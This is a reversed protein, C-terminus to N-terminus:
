VVHHDGGVSAVPEQRVLNRRNHRAVDLEGAKMEGTRTGTGASFTDMSFFSNNQSTTRPEPEDDGHVSMFTDILSSTGQVAPPLAYTPGSVSTLLPDSSNFRRHSIPSPIHPTEYHVVGNPSNAFRRLGISIRCTMAVTVCLHLQGAINRVTQPARFIFVTFFITISCIAGYFLLGEELLLRLMQSAGAGKSLVSRATRRVTLCVVVTGYLLPLWATSAALVVPVHLDTIMTCSDVLPYAAHQVPAGYTLLYTNVAVFALLISLVFAQLAPVRPYLAKIRMFMVVESLTIGIM